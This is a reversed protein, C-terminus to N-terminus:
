AITPHGETAVATASSEEDILSFLGVRLQLARSVVGYNTAVSQPPASGRSGIIPPAVRSTSPAAQHRRASEVALAAGYEDPVALTGADRFRSLRSPRSPARAQATAPASTAGRGPERRARAMLIEDAVDCRGLASVVVRYGSVRASRARSREARRSTSHRVPCQCQCQCQCQRPRSRYNPSHFDRAGAPPNSPV